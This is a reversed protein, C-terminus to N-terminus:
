RRLLVPTLHCRYAIPKGYFNRAAKELGFAVAGAIQAKVANFNEGVYHEMIAPSSIDAPRDALVKNVVDEILGTLINMTAQRAFVDGHVEREVQIAKRVEKVLTDSFERQWAVPDIKGSTDFM